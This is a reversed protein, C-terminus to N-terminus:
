KQDLTDVLFEDIQELINPEIYNNEDNELLYDVVQSFQVVDTENLVVLTTEDDSSEIVELTGGIVESKIAFDCLHTHPTRPFLTVVEKDVLSRLAQLYVKSRSIFEKGSKQQHMYVNMYAPDATDWSFLVACKKEEHSKFSRSITKEDMKNMQKKIKALQRDTLRDEKSRQPPPSPRLGNELWKPMGLGKRKRYYVYFILAMVGMLFFGMNQREKWMSHFLIIYYDVYRMYSYMNM